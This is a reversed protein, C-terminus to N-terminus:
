FSYLGFGLKTSSHLAITLAFQVWKTCGIHMFNCVSIPVCVLCRATGLIHFGVHIKMAEGLSLRRFCGNLQVFVLIALNSHLIFGNCDTIRIHPVGDVATKFNHALHAHSQKIPNLEFESPKSVKNLAKINLIQEQFEDLATSQSDAEFQVM